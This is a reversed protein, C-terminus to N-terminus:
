AHFKNKFTEYKLRTYCLVRLNRSLIRFSTPNRIGLAPNPVGFDNKEHIRSVPNGPVVLKASCLDSIYSIFNIFFIHSNYSFMHDKM